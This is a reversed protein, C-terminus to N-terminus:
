GRPIRGRGLTSTPSACCIAIFEPEFSLKCFSTQQAAVSSALLAVATTSRLLMAPRRSADKLLSAPLLLSTSRSPSYAVTLSNSPFGERQGEDSRM